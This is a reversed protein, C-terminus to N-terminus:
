CLGSRFACIGGGGRFRGMEEEYKGMYVMLRSRNVDCTERSLIMKQSVCFNPGGLLVPIYPIYVLEIRRGSLFFWNVSGRFFFLACDGHLSQRDDVTVIKFRYSYPVYRCIYRFALKPRRLEESGVSKSECM